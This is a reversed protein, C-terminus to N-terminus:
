PYSLSASPVGPLDESSTGNEIRTIDSTRRLDAQVRHGELLATGLLFALFAINVLVSSVVLARKWRTIFRKITCIMCHPHTCSGDTPVTAHARAMQTQYDRLMATLESPIVAQVVAKRTAHPRRSQDELTEPRLPDFRKLVRYLTMRPIGFQRCTETVSRGHTSYHELWTLREQARESLVRTGARAHALLQTVQETTFDTHSM